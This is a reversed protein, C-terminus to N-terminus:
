TQKKHKEACTESHQCGGCGKKDKHDVATVEKFVTGPAVSALVKGIRDPDNEKPKFTVIFHQKELDPKASLVGPKDALAKSLAKAMEKTLDPVKFVASHAVDEGSKGCTADEDARTARSGVAFLTLIVAVTILIRIKKM